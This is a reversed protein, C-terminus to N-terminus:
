AEVFMQLTHVTFGTTPAATGWQALIDVAGSLTTDINSTGTIGTIPYIAATSTSNTAALLTIQGVGTGPAGTTRVTYVAEIQFMTGATIGSAVFAVAPLTMLVQTGLKLELILTGSGTGMVGTVKVRITSGAVLTNASITTSGVGTGVLSTKVATNYVSTASTQRFIVRVGDTIAYGSMTTPKGTVSAWAPAVTTNTIGTVIGQANVTLVPTQTASGYTAAAPGHSPLDALVLARLTPTGGGTPAIILKSAAWSGYALTITGTGTIPGGSVSFEAPVAIQVSTVTGLMPSPYTITNDFVCVNPITYSPFSGGSFTFDYRGDPLACQWRGYADATIPNAMPVTPTASGTAPYVVSPTASGAPYVTVTGYPVANGNPDQVTYEGGIRQM